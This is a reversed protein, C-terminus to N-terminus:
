PSVRREKAEGEMQRYEEILIAGKRNGGSNDNFKKIERLNEAINSDKMVSISTKYLLEKSIKSSKMWKGINHKDVCSANLIQDAGQPFVLMPVEFYIAENMSNMGGHTIFLSAKRLIELQPLFEYIHINDPIFGLKTRDIGQHMSIYVEVEKNQFSQICKKYFGINETFITGFSIYILPQNTKVMLFDTPICKREYISAGIFQFRDDLEENYPQFERSTFVLNLGPINREAENFRDKEQREIGPALYNTIWERVRKSRLYFKKSVLSSGRYRNKVAENYAFCAFIRVAPIELQKALTRGIFFDEEYLLVDYERGYLLGTCYAAVYHRTVSALTGKQYNYNIYPIFEAGVSIIEEKWEMSCIYGVLHGRRILEEVLGLTPFIHGAFPVNVFLIKSM